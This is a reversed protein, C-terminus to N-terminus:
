DKMKEAVVLNSADIEVINGEETPLSNPNDKFYSIAADKVIKEIETYSYDKKIFMSCIYLIVLLIITGFIIIKMMKFMRKRASLVKNKDEIEEELLAEEEEEIVEEKKPKKVMNFNSNM